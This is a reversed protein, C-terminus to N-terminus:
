RVKDSVVGARELEPMISRTVAKDVTGHATSELTRLTGSWVLHGGEGATTWIDTQIQIITDTEIYGPDQVNAWYSHFRGYYDQAALQQPRFAGPVYRSTAEDPLRTSTLVAGVDHKRIAELVQDTDPPAEPYLSYSTTATVGRRGLAKAFADEWMRRRVPDKRIAVVLVDHVSGPRYSPDRWLNTMQSNVACGAAIMWLVFAVAAIGTWRPWGDWRGAPM